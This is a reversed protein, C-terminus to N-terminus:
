RLRRPGGRDDRRSRGIVGRRLALWATAGALAIIRSAFLAREDVYAALTDEVGTAACGRTSRLRLGSVEPASKRAYYRCRTGRM